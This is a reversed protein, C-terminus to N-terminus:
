GGGTGEMDLLVEPRVRGRYRQELDALLGDMELALPALEPLAMAQDKLNGDWQASALRVWALRASNWSRYNPLLSSPAAQPSLQNREWEALEYSVRVEARFAQLTIGLMDSAAVARDSVADIEKELKFLYAGQGFILFLLFCCVAGLLYAPTITRATRNM